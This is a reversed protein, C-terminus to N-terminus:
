SSRFRKLANELNRDGEAAASVSVAVKSCEDDKTASSPSSRAHITNSGYPRKGLDIQVSISSRSLDVGSTQLAKTLTRLLGQSYVSSINITGSEVTSDNGAGSCDNAKPSRNQQFQPQPLHLPWKTTKDADSTVSSRGFTFISPQMGPHLPREKFTAATNINSDIVLNRGNTPINASKNKELRPETKGGQTHETFGEAVRSNKLQSVKSSEHSWPSYPSEYRNVKEQLFHIYDIVELLFSAKDRKQDSNPIIERLKQFRDNIKSRRRQETASHKSRPTSPKQDITRSEIKVSMNNGTLHPSLEKKIILRDEHDDDEDDEEQESKAASIIMDMFSQNNQSSSLQSSSLSSFTAPTHKQHSSTHLTKDPLPTWQRGLVNVGAEQLVHRQAAINEKGTKGKKASSEHEDWLTFGSGTYSSCNSNEDNRTTSCAQANTSFLSGELMSSPKQNFYSISYTGFGGPLVHEVSASASPIPVPPKEEGEMEIGSAAKTPM